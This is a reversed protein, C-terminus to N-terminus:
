YNMNMNWSLDVPAKLSHRLVNLRVYIMVMLLSDDWGVSIRETERDRQRDREKALSSPLTHFFSQNPASLNLNGNAKVKPQEVKTPAAAAATSKTADNM